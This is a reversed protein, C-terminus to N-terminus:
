NDKILSNCSNNIYEGYLDRILYMYSKCINEVWETPQRSILKKFQYIQVDTYKISGHGGSQNAYVRKGAETERGQEGTQGRAGEPGRPTGSAM